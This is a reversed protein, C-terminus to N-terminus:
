IQKIAKIIRIGDKIGQLYLHEQQLTSIEYICGTFDNMLRYIEPQTKQLKMVEESLELQRQHLKQGEEGQMIGHRYSEVLEEYFTYFIDSEFEM